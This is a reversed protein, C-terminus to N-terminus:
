KQMPKRSRHHKAKLEELKKLQDASLVRGIEAKEKARIENMKKRLEEKEGAYSAHIKEIRNIQDDSLDLEQKLKTMSHKELKVPNQARVSTSVGFVGMLVMLKIKCNM